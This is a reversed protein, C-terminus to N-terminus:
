VPGMVAKSGVEKLVSKFFKLFANLSTFSVTFFIKEWM